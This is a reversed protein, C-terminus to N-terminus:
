PRGGGISRSDTGGSRSHTSRKALEGPYRPHLTEWARRYEGANLPVLVGTEDLRHSSLVQSLLGLDNLPRRDPSVDWIRTGGGGGPGGSATLVRQGDPSFEASLVWNAHPLPPTLPQGTAAEWLRATKDRSATLVERGDPSFQVAEIPGNHQVLPRLREGTATDWIWATGDQCGTVVRRGDASFRAATVGAAHPLPPTLPHGTQADWLRAEGAGTLNGGGNLIGSATLM